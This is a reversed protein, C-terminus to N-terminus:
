RGRAPDGALSATAPLPRVLGRDENVSHYGNPTRTHLIITAGRRPSFTISRRRTTEPRDDCPELAFRRLAAALVIKMELQAFTAGICRRRGGGFPLWSYTGPPNGVFREPRFAFPEPYIEPDHHVLFASALLEVGAPYEVAGIRVPQTTLRPELMPVVPRLRLIEQVTATLYDDGEGADLEATLAAVVRPEGALHVFAWALASATTEHGAVLATMLEDRLEADSM